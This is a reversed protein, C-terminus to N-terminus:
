VTIADSYLLVFIQSSCLLLATSILYPVVLRLSSYFHFFVITVLIELWWLPIQDLFEIFNHKLKSKM